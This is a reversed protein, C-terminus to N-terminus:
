SRSRHECRYQRRPLVANADCSVPARSHSSGSGARRANSTVVRYSRHGLNRADRSWRLPRSSSRSTVCTADSVARRADFEHDDSRDDRCEISRREALISRRLVGAVAQCGEARNREIVSRSPARAPVCDRLLHRLHQVTPQWSQLRPLTRELVEHESGQAAEADSRRQGLVTDGDLAPLAPDVVSDRGEHRARPSPSRTGRVALANSSSASRPM